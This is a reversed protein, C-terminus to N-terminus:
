HRRRQTTVKCQCHQESQRGGLAAGVHGSVSELGLDSAMPIDLVADTIRGHDIPTSGDTPAACAGLLLMASLALLALILSSQWLVTRDTATSSGETARRTLACSRAGTVAAELHILSGHTVAPEPRM